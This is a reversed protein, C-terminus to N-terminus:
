KKMSQKTKKARLFEGSDSSASSHRLTLPLFNDDLMSQLRDEDISQLFEYDEDLTTEDFVNNKFNVQM